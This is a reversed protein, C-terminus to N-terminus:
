ICCALIRDASMEFGYPLPICVMLRPLQTSCGFLVDITDGAQEPDPPTDLWAELGSIGPQGSNLSYQTDLLCVWAKLFPSM